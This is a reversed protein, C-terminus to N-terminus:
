SRAMQQSVGLRVGMVVGLKVASYRIAFARVGWAESGDGGLTGLWILPQSRSMTVATLLMSASILTRCVMLTKRM